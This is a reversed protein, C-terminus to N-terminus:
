LLGDIMDRLGRLEAETYRIPVLIPDCDEDLEDTDWATVLYGAGIREIQLFQSAENPRYEGELRVTM